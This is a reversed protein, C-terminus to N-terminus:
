EEYKDLVTIDWSGISGKGIFSGSRFSDDLVDGKNVAFYYEEDVPVHVEVANMDDKIHETIDLSFHSQKISIVVFYRKIGNESKIGKIENTLNGKVTTLRETENKLEKIRQEQQAINAETVEEKSMCGTLLLFPVLMLFVYKRM